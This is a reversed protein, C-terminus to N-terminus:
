EEKDGINDVFTQSRNEGKSIRAKTQQYYIYALYILMFGTIVFFIKRWTDPFGLFPLIAVWIGIILLTKEKRM